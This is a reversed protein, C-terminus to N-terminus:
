DPADHSRKDKEQTLSSYIYMVGALASASMFGASAIRRKDLDQNIIKEPAVVFGLDQPRTPLITLVDTGGAERLGMLYSPSKRKEVRRNAEKIVEHKYDFILAEVPCAAVCAPKVYNTPRKDYCLTCKRTVRKEFDFQPVKWPCSQYCYRCGICKSENIVVHGGSLKTIASVPCAGVCAPQRCHQCAWRHYTGGERNRSDTRLNVVVWNNGSLDTNRDTLLEDRDVKLKNWQKCASMCRKCGICAITDVLKGYRRPQAEALGASGLAALAPASALLKLFRRRNIMAAKTNM